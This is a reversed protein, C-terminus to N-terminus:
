SISVGGGEGTEFSNDHLDLIKRDSSMMFCSDLTYIVHQPFQNERGGERADVVRGVANKLALNAM